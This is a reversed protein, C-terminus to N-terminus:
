FYNNEHISLRYLNELVAIEVKKLKIKRLGKICFWHIHRRGNWGFGKLQKEIKWFTM